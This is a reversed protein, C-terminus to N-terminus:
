KFEIVAYTKNVGDTLEVIHSGDNIYLIPEIRDGVVAAAKYEARLQGIKIDESICDKAMLVYQGNNVHGNTDLHHNEVYFSHLKKSEGSVRIKRPAYEMDLREDLAYVEHQYADPRFIKGSITDVMVWISNAYALHNEYEDTMVYNRMGYVGKFEYPWTMTTIKESFKPLRDIVIQWAALMWVQHHDKMYDLGVGLIESQFTSCDQFYDILSSLKLCHDYGVESYRVRSEFSYKM